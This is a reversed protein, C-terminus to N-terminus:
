SDYSLVEKHQTCLYSVLRAIARGPMGAQRDSAQRDGAWAIARCSGWV